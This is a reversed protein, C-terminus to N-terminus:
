PQQVPPFRPPSSPTSTGSGGGGSYSGDQYIDRVNPRIGYIVHYERVAGIFYGRRKKDARKIVQQIQYQDGLPIQEKCYALYATATDILSNVLDYSKRYTRKGKDDMKYQAISYADEYESCATAFLSTSMISILLGIVIIVRKM